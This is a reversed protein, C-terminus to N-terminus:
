AQTADGDLKAQPLVGDFSGSIKTPQRSMKEVRHVSVHLHRHTESVM